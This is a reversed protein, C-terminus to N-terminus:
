LILGFVTSYIIFGIALALCVYMFLLRYDFLYLYAPVVIKMVTEERIENDSV